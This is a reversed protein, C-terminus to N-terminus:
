TDIGKIDMRAPNKKWTKVRVSNKAIVVKSTHKKDQAMSRKGRRKLVDNLESKSPPHILTRKRHAWGKKAARSRKSDVM